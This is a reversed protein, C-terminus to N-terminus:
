LADKEVEINETKDVKENVVESNKEIDDAIEEGRKKKFTLKVKDGEIIGNEIFLNKVTDSCAAGNSIWYEVRDKKAILEKTHPDYSGVQEVFKGKVPSTKEAVVVKYQAHGKKGVRSLRINLM